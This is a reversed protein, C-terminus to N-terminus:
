ATVGRAATLFDVKQRLRLNIARLDAIEENAAQLEALADDRDTALMPCVPCKGVPPMEFRDQEASM